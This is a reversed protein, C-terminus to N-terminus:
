YDTCEPLPEYSVSFVTDIGDYDNCRSRGKKITFGRICCKQEINAACTKCLNNTAM